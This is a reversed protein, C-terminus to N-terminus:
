IMGLLNNVTTLTTGIESATLPLNVLQSRSLEVFLVTMIAFLVFMTMELRPICGMVLKKKLQDYWATELPEILNAARHNDSPEWFDVFKVPRQEQGLAFFDSLYDFAVRSWFGANARKNALLPRRSKFM